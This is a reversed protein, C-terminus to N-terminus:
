CMCVSEYDMQMQCAINLQFVPRQVSLHLIQQRTSAPNHPMERPVINEKGSHDGNPSLM